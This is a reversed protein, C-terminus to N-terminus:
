IENNALYKITFPIFAKYYTPIDFCNLIHKYYEIFFLAKLNIQLSPHQSIHISEWVTNDSIDSLISLYPNMDDDEIVKSDWKKLFESYNVHLSPYIKKALLNYERETKDNISSIIGSDLLNLTLPAVSCPLLISYLEDNVKLFEEKTRFYYVASALLNYILLTVSTSDELPKESYNAVVDESVKALIKYTGKRLNSPMLDILNSPRQYPIIAKHLKYDSVKAYLKKQLTLLMENRKATDVFYTLEISLSSENYNRRKTQLMFNAESLYQKIFKSLPFFVRNIFTFLDTNDMYLMSFNNKAENLNQEKLLFLSNEIGVSDEKNLNYAIIPQAALQAISAISLDDKIFIGNSMLEGFFLDRSLLFKYFNTLSLKVIKYASNESITNGFSNINEIYVAVVVVTETNKSKALFVTSADFYNHHKCYNVIQKINDISINYNEM